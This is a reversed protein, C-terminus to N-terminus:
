QKNLNPDVITYQGYPTIISLNQPSPECSALFRTLLMETLLVPFKLQVNMKM